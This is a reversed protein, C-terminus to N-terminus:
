GGKDAEAQNLEAEAQRLHELAAEMHPQRVASRSQLTVFLSVTLVVLLALGTIGRNRMFGGQMSKPFTALYAARMRCSNGLFKMGVSPITDALATNAVTLDGPALFDM